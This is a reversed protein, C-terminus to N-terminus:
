KRFEGSRSTQKKKRVLRACYRRTTILPLRKTPTGTYTRTKRNTNPSWGFAGSGSRPVRIRQLFFFFYYSGRPVRSRNPEQQPVFVDPWGGGGREATISQVGGCLALRPRRVAYVGRPKRHGRGSVVVVVVVLWVSGAVRGGNPRRDGPSRIGRARRKWFRTGNPGTRRADGEWWEAPETRKGSPIEAPVHRRGGCAGRPAVAYWSGRGGGGGGGRGQRCSVAAPARPHQNKAGSRATAPHRQRPEAAGGSPRTRASNLQRPSPMPVVREIDRAAARRRRRRYLPPAHARSSRSVGHSTRRVRPWVIGPLRNHFRFPNEKGYASPPCFDSVSQISPAPWIQLNQIQITTRPRVMRFKTGLYFAM